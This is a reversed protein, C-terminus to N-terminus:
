SIDRHSKESEPLQDPEAVRKLHPRIGAFQSALAFVRGVGSHSCMVKEIRNCSYGSILPKRTM